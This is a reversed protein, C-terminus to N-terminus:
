IIGQIHNKIRSFGGVRQYLSKRYAQNQGTCALPHGLNAAGRAAVLLLFYDLAQFINLLTNGSKVDSHGIVYDNDNTFYCAMGM